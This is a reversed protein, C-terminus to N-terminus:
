LEPLSDDDSNLIEMDWYDDKNNPNQRDTKLSLIKDSNGDQSLNTNLMVVSSNNVNDEEDDDDDDDDNTSGDRVVNDKVQVNDQIGISGSPKESDSGESEQDSQTELTEVRMKQPSKQRAWPFLSKQMSGMTQIMLTWKSSIRVMLDKVRTKDLNQVSDRLEGKLLNILESLKLLYKKQESPLKECGVVLDMLMICSNLKYLEVNKIMDKMCDIYQFLSKININEPCVKMVKGTMEEQLFMAAVRQQICHGRHGPPLLQVLYVRNHHHRTINTLRRCLDPIVGTWATKTYCELASSIAVQFEYHCKNNNLSKDLAAKVLIEVFFTIEETVLEPRGQLAFSLTDLFGLLNDRGILYLSNNDAENLNINVCPQLASRIQQPSYFSQDPLLNTEEAGYNIFIRLIDLPKPSWSFSDSDQITQTQIIDMLLRQCSHVVLSNKHISMIYFLWKCIVEPCSIKHFCMTLIGSTLFDCLLDPQLNSLHQDIMSDGKIFGCQTPSLSKTFLQLFLRSNFVQEGPHVNYIVSESVQLRELEKEQEPLLQEAQAEEEIVQVFGGRMIDKKLENQMILLDNNKVEIEKEALLTDLSFISKSNSTSQSSSPVDYEKESNPTYVWDKIPVSLKEALVISEKISIKEISKETVIASTTDIDPVQDLDDDDSKDLDLSSTPSMGLCLSDDSYYGDQAIPTVVDNVDENGDDVDSSKAPVIQESIKKSWDESKEPTVPTEFNLFIEAPPQIKKPSVLSNDAKAKLRPSKCLNRKFDDLRSHRIILKDSLKEPTKFQETVDLSVSQNLTRTQSDNTMDVCDGGALYKLPTVRPLNDSDSSKQPSKLGCTEPLLLNDNVKYPIVKGEQNVAKLFKRINQVGQLPQPKRKNM